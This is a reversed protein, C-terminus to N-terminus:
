ESAGQAPLVSLPTWRQRGYWWDTLCRETRRQERSITHFLECVEIGKIVGANRHPRKVVKYGTALNATEAIM